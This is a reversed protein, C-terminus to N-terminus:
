EIVLEPLSVLRPIDLVVILDDTVGLTARRDAREAGGSELGRPAVHRSALVEDVTVALAGEPGSLVAVHTPTSVGRVKLLRALDVVGLLVGRVQAIGLLWDRTPPLPTVEPMPVIERLHQVPFGLHEAGVRCVAVEIEGEKRAGSALPRALVDRRERLVRARKQEAEDSRGQESM